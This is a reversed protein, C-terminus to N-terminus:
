RGLFGLASLYQLHHLKAPELQNLDSLHDKVIQAMASSGILKPIIVYSAGLRYYILAEDVTSATVIIHSAVKHDKLQRMLQLTADHQPITSIILKARTVGAQHLVTEDAADGYITQFGNEA